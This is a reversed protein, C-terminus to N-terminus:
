AEHAQGLMQDYLCYTASLISVALAISFGPFQGILFFNAVLLFVVSMM